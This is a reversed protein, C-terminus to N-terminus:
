YKPVPPCDLSGRKGRGGVGGNKTNIGIYLTFGTFYYWDKYQSGGRVTGDVPYNPDGSKLEGARYAMEVAKLGREQALVFQDVYTKSVDDLYDNFTKRLGIEYALVTNYGVRFKVGAGFPIAFQTLKYPKRDPYQPLGQGETSLPQLFVKRGVSDFTYPDFHYVAVGAFAYPSIKKEEMDFLTYEFLFNGEVIRSVFSLNRFRLEPANRADSAEITGYNLGARLAFHSTLDYKVGLGLALNSQDFTFARGQLDGQYNSLGGFLTLHVRSQSFAAVPFLLCLVWLKQM